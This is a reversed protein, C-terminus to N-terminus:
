RTSIRSFDAVELFTKGIRQLLAMRAGKVALDPSDVLVEDFFRAVPDKLTRMSAVAAEYDMGAVASAVHGEVGELAAILCLESPETAPGPRGEAGKSINLVRKFTQMMPAFDPTGAIGRLAALKRHVVLPRAQGGYVVADALDPTAGDAVVIAKWRAM